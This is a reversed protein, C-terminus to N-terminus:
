PCLRIGAYNYTRKGTGDRFRRRKVSPFAAMLDRGFVGATPVHSMGQEDCWTRFASYIRVTGTSYGPGVECTDRVFASVPSGLDELDQLADAASALEPFRGRRTLRDLGALAWNFVGPLEAMIADHLGHDERGYFSESTQLLLFRSALAGSSDALRPLENSLLMFRCKTFGVWDAKHKRPITQLDDGSLSLLREVVVASDSRGSLRADGIVALRKNITSAMGFNQALAGLTPACSNPKGILAEAVRAITSKGSRKPGVLLVMKHYATNGSILYGFIEQLLSISDPDEPWLDNLFARWREPHAADPKYDFPLRHPIFLSPSHQELKRTPLHLRGNAMPLYDGAGDTSGDLWLPCDLDEPLISYDPQRLQGIVDRLLADRLKGYIPVPEGAGDKSPTMYYWSSLTKSITARLVIESIPRWGEADSYIWWEDRWWQLTGHPHVDALYKDALARPAPSNVLDTGEGVMNFQEEFEKLEPLAM